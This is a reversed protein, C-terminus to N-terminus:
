HIRKILPTEFITSISCIFPASLNFIVNYCSNLHLLGSKWGELLRRFCLEVLCIFLRPLKIWSQIKNHKEVIPRRYGKHGKQEKAEKLFYTSHTTNGCVSCRKVASSGILPETLLYIKQNWTVLNGWYVDPYHSFTYKETSFIPAKNDFSGQNESLSM